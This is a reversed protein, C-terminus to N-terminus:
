YEAVAGTIVNTCSAATSVRGGFSLAEINAKAAAACAERTMLHVVSAGGGNYIIVMLSWNREAGSQAVATGASAILTAAALAATTRSLLKLM